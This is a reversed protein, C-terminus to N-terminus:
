TCTAGTTALVIPAPTVGDPDTNDVDPLTLSRGLPALATSDDACVKYHGYPLGPEPLNGLADTKFVFKNGCVLSTVVVHANLLPLVGRKVLVNLSPERVTVPVTGGPVVLVLGPYGMTTYYDPHYVTPDNEACNGAYATYGEPFPFLQTTAITPAAAPATPSLFSLKGGPTLNSNTVTIANGKAIYPTGGIKTGFSVSIIAAKAYDMQVSTTNGATVSAGKVSLQLRQKDVWGAENLTANYSGVPIHSFVACGFENTYDQYNDPGSASVLMSPVPKNLQDKVLVTLTGQNAGFDGVRPAVLSRMTVPKVRKGVLDSTVTSSIRIYNAQTSKNTCSETAGTADYVWDSDSFVKYKNGDVMVNPNVFHYNALTPSPLGRMKEQDQEALGAAVSRTRNTATTRSSVDITTLVTSLVIILIVASILTEVLTVGHEASLRNRVGQSPLHAM